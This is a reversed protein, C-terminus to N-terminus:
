LQLIELERRIWRQDPYITRRAAQRDVSHQRLAIVVVVAPNVQTHRRTRRDKCCVAPLHDERSPTVDTVAPQHNDLIAFIDGIIRMVRAEIHGHKLVDPRPIYHCVAAGGPIAAARMNVILRPDVIKRNVRQREIHPSQPM